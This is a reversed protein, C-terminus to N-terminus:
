RAAKKRVLFVWGQHAQAFIPQGPAFTAAPQFRDIAPAELELIDGPAFGLNAADLSLTFDCPSGAWSAVAIMAKGPGVFATALVDRRSTQVPCDKEWYGIMKSDAIGFRDWVKWLDTCSANQRGDMGYVMGLWLNGGNHSFAENTLGFPIGSVETFFYDPSGSFSYGEGLMLDTIYPLHEAYCLLASAHRGAYDYNNGSHFKITYSPKNKSMVRCIRKTTDRDYALGDIYQAGVGTYRMLLDMGEVYFNLLRSEPQTAIAADMQGEPLGCTWAPAYGTVLHERLWSYGGGAGAYHGGSEDSVWAEQSDYIESGLSRLAWIEPMHNSIERVTYYVTCDKFGWGLLKQRYDKLGDLTLFPYNIYPNIGGVGHHVHAMNVGLKAGKESDHDRM